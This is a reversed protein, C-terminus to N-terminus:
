QERNISIDNKQTYCKKMRCRTKLSTSERYRIMTHGRKNNGEIFFIGLFLLLIFWLHILTIKNFLDINYSM